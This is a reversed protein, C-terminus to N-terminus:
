IIIELGLNNKSAWRQIEEKLKEKRFEQWSDMIKLNKCTEKFRKFAGKGNIAIKLQNQMKADEINLIFDKMIKWEDIDCLKPMAVCEPHGKEFFNSDGLFDAKTIEGTETNFYSAKEKTSCEIGAIFKYLNVKM